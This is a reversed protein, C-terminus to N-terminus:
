NVKRRRVKGHSREVRLAEELHQLYRYATAPSIQLEAAARELLDTTSIEGEEPILHLLALAEPKVEPTVTDTFVDNYMGFLGNDQRQLKFQQPAEHPPNWEFLHWPEKDTPGIM